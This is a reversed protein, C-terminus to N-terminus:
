DRILFGSSIVQDDSRIKVLYFGPALRPFIKLPIRNQETLQMDKNQYLLQGMANYVALEFTFDDLGSIELHGSKQPGPNPVAAITVPNAVAPVAVVGSRTSTGDLDLQNLRYYTLRSGAQRDLYTYTTNTEMKGPVFDIKYFTNGDTSREIEFGHNNSEHATEWSLSVIQDEIRKGTFSILQVPLSTQTCLYTDRCEQFIRANHTRSYPRSYAHASLPQSGLAEIKQHVPSRYALIRKMPGILEQSKLSQFPGTLLLILLITRMVSTEPDPLSIM